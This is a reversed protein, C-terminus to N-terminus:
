SVTVAVTDTKAGDDSTITITATGVAVATILGSASVTAKTANSTTYVLAQNSANVPTFVTTIQQTAGVLLAATDPSSAISVLAVYVDDILISVNQMNLEGLDYLADRVHHYLVHNVINGLKDGVDNHIYDPLKISGAPLVDGDAQATVVRTTPNWALQQITM